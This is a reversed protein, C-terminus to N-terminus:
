YASGKLAPLLSGPGLAVKGLSLGVDERGSWEGCEHVGDCTQGGQTSWIALEHLPRPDATQLLNSRYTLGKM